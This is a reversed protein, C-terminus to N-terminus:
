HHSEYLGADRSERRYLAELMTDCGQKSCVPRHAGARFSRLRRMKHLPCAGITVHIRRELANGSRIPPQVDLFM